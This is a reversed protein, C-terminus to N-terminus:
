VETNKRRGRRKTTDNASVEVLEGKETMRGWHKEVFRDFAEADTADM